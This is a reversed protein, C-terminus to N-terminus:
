YECLWCCCNKRHVCCLWPGSRAQSITRLRPHDFTEGSPVVPKRNGDDHSGWRATRAPGRLQRMSFEHSASEMRSDGAHASYRSQNSFISSSPRRSCTTIHNRRHPQPVLGAVIRLYVAPNRERVEAIVSAGHEVWDAYLDSLFEEGLRNRSGKPRGPGGNYCPKSFSGTPAARTV